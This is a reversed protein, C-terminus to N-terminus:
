KRRKNGIMKKMRDALSGWSSNEDLRAVVATINDSGGADNALQILQDAIKNPDDNGQFAAEIKADPVMKTLGDSCILVYDGKNLVVENLDVEVDQQNGISRTLLNKLDSKEADEPKLVGKSVQEQVFSHDVTKQILKKDHYIYLRSDGVHAIALKDDLWLAAVLTTGMNKNQPNSQAAEYVAYNAYKVCDGLLISRSDYKPDAPVHFFVPVHGTQLAKKVQESCFDTALRSAVEGSAHGGMGDAVIMLGLDTDVMFFDENNKRKRGVDSKGAINLRHGM